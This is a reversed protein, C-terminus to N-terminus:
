NDIICKMVEISNSGRSGFNSLLFRIFFPIILLIVFAIIRIKFNKKAKKVADADGAIVIKFYDISGFLIVLFPAIYIILNWGWRFVKFKDCDVIFESENMSISGYDFNVDKALEKMKNVEDDLKNIEEKNNDVVEKMENNLKEEEEKRQEPNTVGVAPLSRKICNNIENTKQGCTGNSRTNNDLSYWCSDVLSDYRNLKKKIANLDCSTDVAQKQKEVENSQTFVDIIKYELKRGSAFEYFKLFEYKRYNTNERVIPNNKFDEKGNFTNSFSWLDISSFWSKFVNKIKTYDDIASKCSGSQNNKKSIVSYVDDSSVGCESAIEEYVQDIKKNWLENAADYAYYTLSCSDNANDTNHYDMFISKNEERIAEALKAAMYTLTINKVERTFYYKRKDNVSVDEMWGGSRSNGLKDYLNYQFDTYEDKDTVCVAEDDHTLSSPYISLKVYLEDDDDCTSGDRFDYKNNFAFSYFRWKKDNYKSARYANSSFDSPYLINLDSDIYTDYFYFSEYDAQNCAAFVTKNFGFVIIFIAIFVYIKKILKKQM